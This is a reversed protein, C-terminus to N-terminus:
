VAYDVIIGLTGAAATSSATEIVVFFNFFGGPDVTFGLADWIPLQRMAFTFTNAHTVEQLKYAGSNAVLVVSSGFMKNPSAYATISTVAGTLASTPIQGANSATTGDNVPMGAAIGGLPADSFILNIDAAVAATANSDIGKGYVQVKKIKANTPIRPGLTYTSFQVNSATPSIVDENQRLISSAGEGSTAVQVPPVNLNVLNASELIDGAATLTM